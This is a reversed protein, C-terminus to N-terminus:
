KEAKKQEVVNPFDKYLKQIKPDIILRCYAANSNKLYYDKHYGEAKYFTSAPTIETVIKESFMGQAESMSSQAIEKQQESHYFIASRYQEGIDAGQRNLTTPDHLKWFVSLLTSFNIQKPNFEIEIAEAHGSKGSSVDEYTPNDKMGGTYGPTVKTVGNLKQFIAEICWFCGGALTAIEMNEDYCM